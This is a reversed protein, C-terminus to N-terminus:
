GAMGLMGPVPVLLSKSKKARGALASVFVGLVLGPAPLGKRWAPPIELRSPELISGGDPRGLFDRRLPSQAATRHSCGSRTGM